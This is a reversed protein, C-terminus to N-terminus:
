PGNLVNDEGKAWAQYNFPLAAIGLFREREHPAYLRIRMVESMTLGHQPREVLEFSDGAAVIGPEIIRFFSGPRLATAFRKVWQSNGMRWGFKYCPLRPESAEIIATGARWKDGVVCRSAAVGRLTLNEGFLGPEPDIAYQSAFWVYDEHSYAYVAKSNTGEHLHMSCQVDGDLMLGRVVVPVSVPRKRFGTQFTRGGFTVDELQGLNVSEITGNMM